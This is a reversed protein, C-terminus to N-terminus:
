VSKEKPPMTSTYGDLYISVMTVDHQRVGWRMRRYEIQVKSVVGDIKIPEGEECKHGNPLHRPYDVWYHVHDGIRPIAPSYVYIPFVNEEDDPRTADWIHITIEEPKTTM